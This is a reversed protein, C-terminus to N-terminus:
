TVTNGSLAAGSPAQPLSFTVSGGAPDTAALQVTYAVGQTAATAPASTFVPTSPQTHTGSGSGCGALVAFPIATLFISPLALFRGRQM